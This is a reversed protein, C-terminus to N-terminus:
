ARCRSPRPAVASSREPGSSTRQSISPPSSPGRHITGCARTAASFPAVRLFTARPDLSLDLTFEYSKTAPNLASLSEIHDVPPREAFEILEWAATVPDDLQAPPAPFFQPALLDGPYDSPTVSPQTRGTWKWMQRLFDVRHVNQWNDATAAMSFRVQQDPLGGVSLLNLSLPEMLDTPMATSGVEILLQYGAICPPPPPAGPPPPPTNPLPFASGPAYDPMMPAGDSTTLNLTLRAELLYVTGPDFTFPTNDL